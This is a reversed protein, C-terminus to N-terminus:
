DQRRLRRRMAQRADAVGLTTPGRTPQGARRVQVDRRVDGTEAAPQRAQEDPKAHARRLPLHDMTRRVRGAHVRTRKTRIAPPICRRPPPLGRPTLDDARPQVLPLVHVAARDGRAVRHHLPQHRGWGRDDDLHRYRLIAVQTQRQRHLARVDGHREPDDRRRHRRPPAPAGEAGTDAGPAVVGAGDRWTDRRPSPQIHWSFDRIRSGYECIYLNSAHCRILM